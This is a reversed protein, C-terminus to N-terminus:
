RKPMLGGSEHYAQMPERNIGFLLTDNVKLVNRVDGRLRFGSRHQPVYRFSGSGDGELLMGYNADYKGFRVRAENINGGLFLDKNGDSDYDLTTIAFVPAFQVEIPLPKKRLTGEGDNIFLTTKLFDAELKKAEELEEETFVDEITAEAYQEYSSFRSRLMIMQSTLEDLTAYPYSVGQVYFCLIPDISGNRDFDAYYLEAPEETSAQLQSNLGFNGTVLDPNGDSNLDDIIVENWLGRYPREFYDGTQNSLTGNANGFISIPMWEGVVVLEEAGNGDLDHWAAGTVMGITQLDPAIETTQDVFQGQGNNVLVYSRPLTPYRGPVVRGGVFLDPSGDDNVDAAAVAGTSTLMQPLAEKSRNFNGEGDNLYLRDQLAPDAPSFRAYGGSAVYLDLHGDGNADFFAADVDDSGADEKFAPQPDAAFQGSPQQLYLRSVQGVGGGTFVDDLSDGNVDAKALAPGAFSKPNVMFPQRRFDDIDGEMRHQFDIPADVKAFLSPAPKSPQGTASADQQRVVLRQDAKIDVLTQQKGDPWVVRLSDVHDHQGLGFHLVPSVSSLYGRMPMQERHQKQEGAYVTLNTGIGLTNDGAGELKVQLYHRDLQSSARNEFLFAPENINNTVLDLDGDNDLDGYAAGQSKSPRDMGWEATKDSFTLGGDNEFMYNTLRTSPLRRLLNAMDRRGLGSPSQRIYNQKFRLFDRNTFDHLIGNTVFLDKWGDNNYDAALPAWSWDTNSIGAVQGIESYTGNGNNLQLTNRMYQYHFGVDVNMEFQNRDNPIYLLKQRRNGEALMDLAIVDSWGDNNIDAADVGMSARSTHGMAEQLQNTFTGDGNNIYLYDPPSYDNSVYIDMWGDKNLDAIGAGLGYILASSQIGAEETVDTFHGGDNRYLHLGNVPDKKELLQQTATRGLRPLRKVNHTLLFLDVDGDGDYDFFYGQNSSHPNALGYADAQEEFQPIGREDPGQNIYLEDVRRELPLQGSYAVYIDLLGDGNVDAMSVGTKWTNKRGAVGAAETVEQFVMDGQNLYLANYSMNGSFYLDDLGDGNLDGIAVGGGNSFYPYM